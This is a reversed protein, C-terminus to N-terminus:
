DEIIELNELYYFNFKCLGFRNDLAGDKKLPNFVIKGTTMLTKDKFLHSGNIKFKTGVKLGKAKVAQALIDTQKAQLETIQQGIKEYEQEFNM